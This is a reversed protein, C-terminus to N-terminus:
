NGAAGTGPITQNCEVPICDPADVGRALRNIEKMTARYDPNDPELGSACSAARQAQRPCATELLTYALNNWPRPDDPATHAAQRFAIESERYNGTAYLGNGYTMWATMENPWHRTAARYASIAATVQGSLELDHAASLYREARASEPISGAPLIVLAWHGSRSWTKEFVSLSTHRRKTTGSRLIVERTALDYGVVVAFHWKPFWDVGLNQFVLVPNGGAVEDLLDALSPRLPYALMGRQRAAAAIEEPLSGKLGPIFVEDTLDDPAVDIAHAGLVTALAAPGCQHRQQPYFPIEELEVRAPLDIAPETLLRRTQQPTACALLLCTCLCVGALRRTNAQLEWDRDNSRISSRSSIPQM